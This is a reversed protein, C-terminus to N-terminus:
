RAGCDRLLAPVTLLLIRVNTRLTWTRAYETDLELMDLTGLTSRGSVQWLGTIGPRVTFRDAYRAPFQDAEWPLCPRPGVLSMTGELVNFLQPLEDLSTRRLLAGLRTVRADDALKWSGGVSTDEGALERAILARHAEDGGGVTMSRFKLMTFPERHRGVREQRFLAPGPSGLRVAVAILLLLPALIVVLAGAATVDLLRAAARHLRGPGYQDSGYRDSGHQDSGHRDPSVISM